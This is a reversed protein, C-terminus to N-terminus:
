RRFLIKSIADKTTILYFGDDIESVDCNVSGKIQKDTRLFFSLEGQFNNNSIIIEEESKEYTLDAELYKILGNAGESATEAELWPYHNSVDRQMQSYEKSLQEWSKNHSRRPDLIDDPHMFHSFYGYTNVGMLIGWKMQETYPFGSIMRPLHIVGREDITLEQEYSDEDEGKDYLSALVRFDENAELLADIGEETIINSPPVYTTLKYESLHYNFFEKLLKIGKVMTQYDRWPKYGLDQDKLEVTTLPQHNYGHIGIEGGSALVEKAYHQIDSSTILIDEESVEEVEDEYTGIAVGTYQLKNIAGVRTMDPWWVERYFDAVTKNYEEYIAEHFGTPPPSPFDDIYNIKANIIPYLVDTGMNSIVTSIVGRHMKGGLMSGNFYFIKGKGYTNSWLLSIENASTAHITASKDLQVAIMSNSLSEQTNIELNEGGLFFNDKMKIGYGEVFSGTEIIGLKSSISMFQPSPAIRYAFFVQGGEYIKDMLGDLDKVLGLDELILVISNMDESINRLEQIPVVEYPLRMYELTKCVNEKIEEFEQTRKDYLIWYKEDKNSEAVQSVTEGQALKSVLIPTNAKTTLFMNLRTLQICLTLGIVFSLIVIFNRKSYM